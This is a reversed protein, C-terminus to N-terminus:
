SFATSGHDHRLGVKRAFLECLGSWQFTIWLKEHICHRDHEYQDIADYGLMIDIFTRATSGLKERHVSMVRWSWNLWTLGREHRGWPWQINISIDSDRCIRYTPENVGIIATQLWSQCPLIGSKCLKAIETFFCRLHMHKATSVGSNCCMQAWSVVELCLMLWSGWTLRPMANRPLM